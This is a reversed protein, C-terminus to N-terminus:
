RRDEMSRRRCSRARCVAIFDAAVGLGHRYASACARVGCRDLARPSPRAEQAGPNLRVCADRRSVPSWAHDGIALRVLSAWVLLAPAVAGFIAVLFAPSRTRTEALAASGLPLLVYELAAFHNDNAFFGVAMGVNTFSFLYPGSAGGLVQLMGLLASAVGIALAVLLLRRRAERELSLIALFIAVAPLLSLLARFTESPILSIPRWSTPAQAATLIEAIFDRGPLASWFETPM